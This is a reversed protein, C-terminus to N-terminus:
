SSPAKVGRQNGNLSESDSRSRRCSRHQLRPEPERERENSLTAHGFRTLSGNPAAYRYKGNRALAGGGARMRSRAGEGFRM